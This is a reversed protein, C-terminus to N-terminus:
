FQILAETDNETSTSYLPPLTKNPKEQDSLSRTKNLKVLFMKQQKIKNELGIISHLHKLHLDMGEHLLSICKISFQDSNTKFSYVEHAM